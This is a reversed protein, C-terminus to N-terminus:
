QRLGAAIPGPERGHNLAYVDLLALNGGVRTWGLSRSGLPSHYLARNIASISQRELVKNMAM